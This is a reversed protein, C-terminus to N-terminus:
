WQLTKVQSNLVGVTETVMTVPPVIVIVGSGLLHLVKAVKYRRLAHVANVPGFLGVGKPPVSAPCSIYSNCLHHTSLLEHPRFIFVCLTLCSPTSLSSLSPHHQSTQHTLATVTKSRETQTKMATAMSLM